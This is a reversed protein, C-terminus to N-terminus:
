IGSLIPYTDYRSFSENPGWKPGFNPGEANKATKLPKQKIAPSCHSNSFHINSWKQLMQRPPASPVMTKSRLTMQLDSFTMELDNQSNELWEWLTVFIM